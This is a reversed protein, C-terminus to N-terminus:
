IPVEWVRERRECEEESKVVTWTVAMSAQWQGPEYGYVM